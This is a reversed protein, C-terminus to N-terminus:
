VIIIKVFWQYLDGPIENYKGIIVKEVSVNYNNIVLGLGTSVFAKYDNIVLGLPTGIYVPNDRDPITYFNLAVFINNNWIKIPSIYNIGM